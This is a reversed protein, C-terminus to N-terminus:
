SALTSDRLDQLNTGLSGALVPVLFWPNGPQVASAILGAAMMAHAYGKSHQSHTNKSAIGGKGMYCAAALGLHGVGGLGGGLLSTGPVLAATTLAADGLNFLKQSQSFSPSAPKEGSPAEHATRYRYDAILNVAAGTLLLPVSWAGGGCGAAMNGAAMLGEGAAVGLRQQLQLGSKGKSAALFALSRLGHVGALAFNLVPIEAGALQSGAVGLAAVTDTVTAASLGDLKHFADGAASPLTKRTSPTAKASLTRQPSNTLVIM